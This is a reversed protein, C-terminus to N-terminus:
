QNHKDLYYKLTERYTVSTTGVDSFINNVGKYTRIISPTISIYSEPTTNVKVLGNLLDVEAGDTITSGFSINIQNNNYAEYTTPITSGYVFTMPIYWDVSANAAVSIYFGRVYIPNNYTVTGSKNSYNINDESIRVILHDPIAFSGKPIIIENNRWADNYGVINNWTGSLNTGYVHMVGNSYEATIGDNSRSWGESFVNNFPLLNSTLHNLKIGTYGSLDAPITVKCSQLYDELDTDFNCIYGESDETVITNIFYYQMLDKIDEIAATNARIQTTDSAITTVKDLINLTNNACDEAYAAASGTNTALTGINNLIATTNSATTSSSTSISDTNSKISQIPTIVAATNDKIDPLNDTDTKIDSATSDISDIKDEMHQAHSNFSEIWGQLMNIITELLITIM